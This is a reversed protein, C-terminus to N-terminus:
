SRATLLAKANTKATAIPEVVVTYPGTGTIYLGMMAGNTANRITLLGLDDDYGGGLDDKVLEQQAQHWDRINDNGLKAGKKTVYGQNFQPLAM